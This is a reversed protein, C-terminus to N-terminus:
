FTLLEVQIDLFAQFFASYFQSGNIMQSLRSIAMVSAINDFVQVSFLPMKPKTTFTMSKSLLSSDDLWWPNSDSAKM